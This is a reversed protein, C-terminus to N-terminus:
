EAEDAVGAARLIAEGESQASAVEADAATLRAARERIEDVLALRRMRRPAEDQVRVRLAGVQEILAEGGLPAAHVAGAEFVVGARAEWAAVMPELQRLEGDAADVADLAARAAELQAVRALAVEPTAEHDLGAAAS